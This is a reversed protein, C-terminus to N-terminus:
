RVTEIRRGRVRDIVSDIHCSPIKRVVDLDHLLEDRGVYEALRDVLSPRHYLQYTMRGTWCYKRQTM